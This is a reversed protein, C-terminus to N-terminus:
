SNDANSTNTHASTTDGTARLHHLNWDFVIIHVSTPSTAPTAAGEGGREPVRRRSSYTSLREAGARSNTANLVVRCPPVFVERLVLHFGAEVDNMFARYERALARFAGVAWRTPSNLVSQVFRPRDGLTSRSQSALSCMTCLVKFIHSAVCVTRSKHAITRRSLQQAASAARLCTSRVNEGEDLNTALLLITVLARLNICAVTFAPVITSLDCSNSCRWAGQTHCKSECIM